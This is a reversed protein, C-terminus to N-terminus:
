LILFHFYVQQAYDRFRKSYNGMSEKVRQPNIQKQSYTNKSQANQEIKDILDILARYFTNSPLSSQLLKPNKLDSIFPTLSVLSRLIANMYCTNGLNTFSFLFMLYYLLVLNYAFSHVNLIITTTIKGMM